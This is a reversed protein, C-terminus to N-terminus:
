PKMKYTTQSHAHRRYSDATRQATESVTHHQKVYQLGASAIRRALPRDDLLREIADAFCKPTPDPCVVATEGDRIYNCVPNPAVVCAMGTSMAQLVRLSVAEGPAPLVLIDAGAMVSTTHGQESAFTILSALDRQRVLNRLAREKPGDGVIFGLMDRRRDRLLSVTKVFTAVQSKRDLPSSCLLTAARGEHAFCAAEKKALVGPRILEVREGDLGKESELFEALVASAAFILSPRHSSMARLAQCDTISWVSLVPDLDYAESLERALQYTDSSFAHILMPPRAALLEMVRGLRRKAIPWRLPAHIVAQVPGLSMSQVSPNSSLLRVVVGEEVLGVCLQRLVSALSTVAQGDVCIVVDPSARRSQEKSEVSKM